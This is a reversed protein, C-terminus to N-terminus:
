RHGKREVIWAAFGNWELAIEAAAISETLTGANLSSFAPEAEFMACEDMQYYQCAPYQCAPVQACLIQYILTPLVRNGTQNSMPPLM